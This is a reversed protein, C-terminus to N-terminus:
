YNWYLSKMTRVHQKNTHPLEKECKPHYHHYLRSQSNMIKMIKYNSPVIMKKSMILPTWIVLLRGTKWPQYLFCCKIFFIYKRKKKSAESGSPLNNQSNYEKKFCIRLNKWKNQLEKGLFIFIVSIEKITKPVKSCSVTENRHVVFIQHSGWSNPFYHFM